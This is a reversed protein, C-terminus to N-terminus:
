IKLSRLWQLIEKTKSLKEQTFEMTAIQNMSNKYEPYRAEINFRNMLNLFRLDSESIPLSVSNALKILDHIKPPTEAAFQVYLGKLAKEIVIHCIFLSWLYHKSDFNSQAVIIDEDALDFWYQIQENINM